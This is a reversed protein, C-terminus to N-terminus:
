NLVLMAVVDDDMKLSAPVSILKIGQRAKRARWLRPYLMCPRNSALVAIVVVILRERLLLLLLLLVTFDLVIGNWKTLHYSVGPFLQIDTSAQLRSV